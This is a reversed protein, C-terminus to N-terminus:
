KENGSAKDGTSCGKEAQEVSKDARQEASHFIGKDNKTVVERQTDKRKALDGTTHKLHMAVAM